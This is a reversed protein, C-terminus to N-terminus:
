KAAPAGRVGAMAPPMSLLAPWLGGATTLQLVRRTGRRRCRQVGHEAARPLPRDRGAHGADDRWPMRSSCCATGPERCAAEDADCAALATASSLTPYRRTPDIVTEGGPYRYPERGARVLATGATPISASPEPVADAAPLSRFSHRHRGRGNGLLQRRRARLERGPVGGERGAGRGVGLRAAALAAGFGGSGGGIVALDCRLVAPASDTDAAHIAGLPALLLATLLTLTPKMETRWYANHNKNTHENRPRTSRRSAAPTARPM